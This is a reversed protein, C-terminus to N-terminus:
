TEKINKLLLQFDIQTGTNLAQHLQTVGIEILNKQYKRPVKFETISYLPDLLNDESRLYHKNKPLVTTQFCGPCEGCVQLEDLRTEISKFFERCIRKKGGNKTVLVIINPNTLYCQSFNPIQSYELDILNLLIHQGFEKQLETLVISM